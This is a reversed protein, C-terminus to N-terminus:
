SQSVTEAKAIVQTRKATMLDIDARMARLRGENPNQELYADLVHLAKAEEGM